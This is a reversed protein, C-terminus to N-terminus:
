RACAGECTVTYGCRRIRSQTRTGTSDNAQEALPPIFFSLLFFPFTSSVRSTKLLDGVIIRRTRWQCGANRYIRAPSARSTVNAGDPAFYYGRFRASVDRPQLRAFYEVRNGDATYKQMCQTGPTYYSISSNAGLKRRQRLGSAGGGRRRRRRRRRQRAYRAAVRPRTENPRTRLM